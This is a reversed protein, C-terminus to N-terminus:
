ASAVKVLFTRQKYRILIWILSLVFFLIRSYNTVLTGSMGVFVFLVLSAVFLNNPNSFELRRGQKKNIDFIIFLFIASFSLGGFIGTEALIEVLTNHSVQERLNLPHSVLNGLGYGFYPNDTFAIIGVQIVMVRDRLSNREAGEGYAAFDFLMAISDPLYDKFYFTLSFLIFIMILSFIARKIEFLKDFRSIVILMFLVVLGSRSGALFCGAISVFFVFIKFKCQDSYSIALGILCVLSFYNPDSMMGSARLTGPIITSEFVRHTLFGIGFFSQFIGLFVSFVIWFAYCNILQYASVRSRVLLFFFLCGIILSLIVSFTKESAGGAALLISSVPLLVCYTLVLLEIKQLRRVPGARHLLFPIAALFLIKAWTLFPFSNVVFADNVIAGTTLFAAITSISLHKAM